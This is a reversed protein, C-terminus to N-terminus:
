KTSQLKVLENVEDITSGIAKCMAQATSLSISACNFARYLTKRNCGMSKAIDVMSLDKRVRLVNVEIQFQNM